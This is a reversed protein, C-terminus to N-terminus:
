IIISMCLGLHRRLAQCLNGRRGNSTSVHAHEESRHETAFRSRQEIFDLLVFSKALLNEHNVVRMVGAVAIISAENSVGLLLDKCSFIIWRIFSRVQNM